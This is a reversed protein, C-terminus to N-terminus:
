QPTNQLLSEQRQKWLFSIAVPLGFMALFGFLRLGIFMAALTIIPHLGLQAGVIKPEVYNRVVTVIAYIAALKVGMIPDGLAFSIVSWPIMVTGTGLIPLIDMVAILAAKLVASRINFVSFLILLETFTLLMILAYSRIVVLLTDTLYVRVKKLIDKIKVPTHHHYFDRLKEFDNAVFVTCFIMALLSLILSPVGKAVGSVLNVAVGSLKSVLAELGSIIGQSVSDLISMLTPDLMKVTRALWEHVVEVMPLLKTSYVVSIWQILDSVLDVGKIALLTVLTALLGYILLTLFSRLLKNTCRLLRSLKVVLLAVLVGIIFPVSVPLLFKFAVYVAAAIVAWYAVTILFDRKKQTQM